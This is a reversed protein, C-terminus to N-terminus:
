CSTTDRCHVEVDGDRQEHPLPVRGKGAEAVCKEQPVTGDLLCCVYFSNRLRPKDSYIATQM